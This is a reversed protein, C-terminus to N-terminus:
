EKKIPDKILADMQERLRRQRTELEQTALSLYIAKEKTSLRGFEEDDLFRFASNRNGEM